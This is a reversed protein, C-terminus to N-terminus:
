RQSYQTKSFVKIISTKGVGSAGLIVVKAYSIKEQHDDDDKAGAEKEKSRNDRTHTMTHEGTTTIGSVPEWQSQSVSQSSVQHPSMGPAAAAEM